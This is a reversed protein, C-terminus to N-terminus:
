THQRPFRCPSFLIANHVKDASAKRWHSYQLYLLTSCYMVDYYQPHGGNPGCSSRANQLFCLQKVPSNRVSHTARAQAPHLSRWIARKWYRTPASWHEKTPRAWVSEDPLNLALTHIARIHPLHLQKGVFVAVPPDGAASEGCVEQDVGCVHTGRSRRILASHGLPYGFSVWSWWLQSSRELQSSNPPGNPWPELPLKTAANARLM